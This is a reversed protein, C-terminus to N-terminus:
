RAPPAECRFNEASSASGSGDYVAVEPYPCLPRALVPEDDTERTALIREPLRGAEVWEILPTMADFRDTGIGGRGHDMGPVLFFRFFDRTEQVGMASLVSEYYEVGMMPNLGADNWGFYSILKGGADRFASLDPDTANFLAAAEAMRPPDSDFDIDALAFDPDDEPFALYRMFTLGFTQQVGPGDAGLMWPVWGGIESGVPLGPFVVEGRSVVGGYIKELAAIQPDTFCSSDADGACRPLDRAADFACDRPDRILGDAVGDEADCREYVAQGLTEVHARTLGAGDLARANWLGWTQTGTLDLVPAGAVIGDFDDPYRQAAILAQRGGTSCGDFYAYDDPRGYYHEVVGRARSASVHVARFAYDLTKARENLGFSALPESRADHGTDSYVTAFHHRLAADRFAQRPEADPPTGAYGGNGHMYLRGNWDFPLNLQLRVEPVIMADVRCHAPVDASSARRTAALVTFTDDGTAALQRCDVAPEFRPTSFDVSSAEARSFSFTNQAGASQAAFLLVFLILAANRPVDPNRADVTPWQRNLM